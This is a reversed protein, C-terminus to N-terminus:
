LGLSKNTLEQQKVEEKCLDCGEDPIFTHHILCAKAFSITGNTYIGKEVYVESPIIFKRGKLAGEEIVGMGGSRVM